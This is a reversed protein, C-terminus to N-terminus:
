SVYNLAFHLEGERDVDIVVFSQQHGEQRPFCLSGPNVVTLDQRYTIQPCHTHGYLVVDAGKLRAAEELMETGFTVEYLHGHTLMVVHKGVSLVVEAPLSSYYDCNGRVIELPCDSIGRIYDEDGECDGLHYIKDPEVKSIVTRLPERRKHTDSIVLIRM